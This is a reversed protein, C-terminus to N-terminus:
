HGCSHRCPAAGASCHGCCFSSLCAFSDITIDSGKVTVGMPKLQALARSFTEPTMGLRAAALGKDYPFAFSAGKGPLGASLQLLLCGVRQPASMIAIHEYEMQVKHMERAMAQTIRTMVEPFDRVTARLSPAPIEIVISDAAATATGSFAGEGFIASEGFIDGRTYLGIVSEEGEGTMRSLKIWGECVIFFRDAADADRFLATGRAYPRLVSTGTLGARAADPLGRFFPLAQLFSLIQGDLPM